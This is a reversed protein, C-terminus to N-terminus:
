FRRGGTLSRKKSGGERTSSFASTRSSSHQRHLRNGDITASGFLQKMNNEEELSRNPPASHAEGHMEEKSVTRISVSEMHNFLSSYELQFGVMAIMMADLDHDGHKADKQYVIRGTISRSKEEYGKMQNILDIDAKPDIMLLAREINTRANEVIYQKMPKKTISDNEIDKIEISSGFNVAKIDYLNLDPHDVPVQGFLSAAYQKIVQIQSVGFGEDVYIHDYRFKRNLEKIRDIAAVQSWGEKSITDRSLIFFKSLENSYAVSLIRTGVKDDNWDCGMIIIYDARNNLVQEETIKKFGQICKDIFYKQFIGSRSVGFEAMVEQVYGIDDNLERMHRDVDDDYHPIVFSPYHFEKFDPSNSLKHLVKEGNPTSTVWLETDPKDMLIGMISNFSKQDVYDAEDIVILDGPQGRVSAGGSSGTTFGRIRSGNHFKMFYTPSKVNSKIISDYTGFKPNMARILTEIQLFIEEAQVDFPTIVLVKLGKNTLVKHLIKLAINYTKGSRRGMRFTQKIASCKSMNRQYWRYKFLRKAENDINGVDINKDAWYYPDVAQRLDDLEALSFAAQMESPIFNDLDLLGSCKITQKGYKSIQEKICIACMKNADTNYDKDKLYDKWYIDSLTKIKQEKIEEIPISLPATM